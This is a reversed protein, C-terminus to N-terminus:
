SASSPSVNAGDAAGQSSADSDWGSHMGAHSEQANIIRGEAVRVEHWRADAEGKDLGPLEQGLQLFTLYHGHESAWLEAYLKYLEEDREGDSANANAELSDALVAFRECSRLEILASVLLRDLLEQPQRGVRILERLAKAYPNTHHKTVSGGRQQLLRIVQQLHQAEDLAVAAMVQVWHDPPDKIPYQNLLMLANTAAKRELHAHDNLLAIEDALVRQGWSLPTHVELPLCDTTPSVPMPNLSGTQLLITRSIEPGVIM